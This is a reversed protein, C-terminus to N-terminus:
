NCHHIEFWQMLERAISSEISFWEGKLRRHSGIERHLQSELLQIGVVDVSISYVLELSNSNGTQLSRLRSHPDKSYGFKCRGQNDSICYLFM